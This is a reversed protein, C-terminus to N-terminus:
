GPQGPFSATLRTYYSGSMTFSLFLNHCLRVSILSALWVPFQQLQPLCPLVWEARGGNGIGCGNCLVCWLAATYWVAVCVDFLLIDPCKITDFMFVDIFNNYWWDVVVVVM